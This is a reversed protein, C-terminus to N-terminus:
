TAKVELDELQKRLMEKGRQIRKRVAAHSIGLIPAIEKGSCNHVYALVLPTRYIESMEELACTVAQTREQIWENADLEKIADRETTKALKSLGESPNLPDTVIERRKRKIDISVNKVVTLLYLCQESVPWTFFDNNISRTLIKKFVEQVADEALYDDSLIKRATRKLLMTHKQFIDEMQDNM